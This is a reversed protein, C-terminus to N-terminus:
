ERIATCTLYWIPYVSSERQTHVVSHGFDGQGLGREWQLVTCHSTNFVRPHRGRLCGPSGRLSGEQPTSYTVPLSGERTPPERQRKFHTTLCHLEVRM